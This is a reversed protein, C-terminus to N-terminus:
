GPECIPFKKRTQSPIQFGDCIDSSGASLVSWTRSASSYKFLVTVPEAEGETQLKQLATAYGDHCRLDIFGVTPAYQDEVKKFAALLTNATVPCGDDSAAGKTPSPTTAVPASSAVAPPESTAPAGTAVPAESAAPAESSCAALAAAATPLLWHLKNM